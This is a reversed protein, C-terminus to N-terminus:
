KAQLLVLAYEPGGRVIVAYAINPAARYGRYNPQRNLLGQWLTVYELLLDSSVAMHVLLLSDDSRVM